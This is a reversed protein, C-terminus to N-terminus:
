RKRYTYNEYSEKVASQKNGCIEPLNEYIFEQAAEPFRIAAYATGLRSVTQAEVIGAEGSLITLSLSATKSGKRALYGNNILWSEIATKLLAKDATIGLQEFICDCLRSLSMEESKGKLRSCNDSIIGFMLNGDTKGAKLRELYANPSSAAASPNEALYGNIVELVQRGYRQQKTKGVGSCELLKQETTPLKVCMDRLATDTFIIYAPMKAEAALKQRLKKLRSFLESDLAYVGGSTQQSRSKAAEKPMKMTVTKKEFLIERAKATLALVSYDGTRRIYGNEELFDIIRRIRVTSVDSMIGYTSLDQLGFQAIKANKSGKLVASIVAAGFTLRRQSLRYICSLIKQSEVTIDVDEFNTNCNSCNSCFSKSSEGFYRLIFERLCDTTTCYFTMQKLRELDRERIQALTEDDLDPNEDSNEILFRNTRVDQGSYLLICEAPEGDRGARGAEQYYSEINKPMNYHIVFSVNSKDIGMGFANTATILQVRDYIFDDQNSRREEDTLGAHYRTCSYGAENLRACVEEVNKRTSCYIIGSKGKSRKLIEVVASFKDSPKRVEFYLNERDFGTTVCYPSNLGLLRIIDQKVDQTATATFAAIVPRCPLQSIFEPIKMYSPRFDQGWQSVCHAEDVAIMAIRVRRSFHLFGQTCLREPAVYIIKYMGRIANGLATEYQASTLSSNLYAAKVGSQILSNVQDKMLSILPSVVITVGEMLLCPIQYCMSKGAGTPMIGLVDRGSLASDILAEQGSRFSDHGFYEKLVSYKDM